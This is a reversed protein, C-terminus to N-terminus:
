ITKFSKLRGLSPITSSSFMIRSKIQLSKDGILCYASIKSLSANSLRVKLFTLPIEILEDNSQPNSLRFIVFM